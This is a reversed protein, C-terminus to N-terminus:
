MVRSISYQISLPAHGLENVSSICPVHVCCVDSQIRVQKASKMKTANVTNVPVPNILQITKAEPFISQNIQIHLVGM